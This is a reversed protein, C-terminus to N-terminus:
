EDKDEAPRAIMLWVRREIGKFLYVLGLSLAKGSNIVTSRMLVLQAKFPDLKMSKELIEVLWSFVQKINSIQTLVLRCFVTNYFLSWCKSTFSFFPQFVAYPTKIFVMNILKFLPEFLLYLPRFIVALATSFSVVAFLIEHGVAILPSAFSSLIVYGPKVYALWQETVEEFLGNLFHICEDMLQVHYKLADIIPQVHARIFDVHRHLQWLAWLISFITYLTIVSEILGRVAPSYIRHPIYPTWDPLGERLKRERCVMAVGESEGERSLTEGDFSSDLQKANRLSRLVDRVQGTHNVHFTVEVVYSCSAIRADCHPSDVQILKQCEVTLIGKMADLYGFKASVRLDAASINRCDLLTCHEHDLHKRDKHLFRLHKSLPEYELWREENKIDLTGCRIRHLPVRTIENSSTIPSSLFSASSRHEARKSSLPTETETVVEDAM